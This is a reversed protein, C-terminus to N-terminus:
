VSKTLVAHAYYATHALYRHAGSLGIRHYRGNLANVLSVYKKYVLKPLDIGVLSERQIRCYLVLCLM